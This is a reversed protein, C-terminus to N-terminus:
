CFPAALQSKIAGIIGGFGLQIVLAVIAQIIGIKEILTECAEFQLAVIDGILFIFENEANPSKPFIYSGGAIDTSFVKGAIINKGLVFGLKVGFDVENCATSEVVMGYIARLNAGFECQAIAYIIFDIKVCAYAPAKFSGIKSM